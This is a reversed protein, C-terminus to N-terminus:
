DCKISHVVRMGFPNDFLEGLVKFDDVGDNGVRVFLYDDENLKEIAQMLKCIEQWKINKWIFLRHTESLNEKDSVDFVRLIANGNDSPKTIEEFDVKSIVLGVNSRKSM